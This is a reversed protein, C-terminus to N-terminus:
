IYGLNLLSGGIGCFIGYLIFAASVEDALGSEEFALRRLTQMEIQRKANRVRCNKLDQKDDCFLVILSGADSM